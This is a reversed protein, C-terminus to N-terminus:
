KKRRASIVEDLAAKLKTDGKRIAIGFHDRTEMRSAALEGNSQAAVLRVTCSDYFIADIRKEKLAQFAPQYSKYRIPDLGHQSLYFDYISADMVAIRMREARIMTPMPEGARYLFMGGETAYPISFDVTQLRGETIIIEAAALDARGSCVMPILSPFQTTRVELPRGLKAAAERAIEIEEGVIEGTKEDRYSYPPMEATTVLILPQENKPMDKEKGELLVTSALIGALLCAVKMMRGRLRRINVINNHEQLHQNTNITETYTTETYETYTTKTNVVHCKIILLSWDDSESVQLQTIRHSGMRDLAHKLSVFNNELTAEDAFLRVNFDYNIDKDGSTWPRGTSIPIMGLFQYSVNQTAFTALPVEGNNITATSNWRAIESYSSCGALLLALMVFIFAIKM